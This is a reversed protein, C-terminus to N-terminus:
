DLNEFLEGDVRCISDLDYKEKDTTVILREVLDIWRISLDKEVYCGGKKHEDPIFYTIRVRPREKIHMAILAFRRDLEQVEEDGLEIREDTIRAAEEISEEYGNLAAFPAFQAARDANSMHKRNKSVFRPLDIIDEYDDKM